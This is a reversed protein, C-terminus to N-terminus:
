AGPRRAILRSAHEAVNFIDLPKVLYEQAGAELAARKEDEM